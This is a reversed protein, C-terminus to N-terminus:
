SEGRELRLDPKFPGRKVQKWFSLVIRKTQAESTLPDGYVIVADDYSNGFFGLCVAGDPRVHEKLAQKTMAVTDFDDPLVASGDELSSVLVCLGEVPAREPKAYSEGREDVLGPVNASMIKPANRQATDLLAKVAARPDYRGSM